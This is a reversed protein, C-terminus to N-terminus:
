TVRQAPPRPATRSTISRRSAARSPLSVLAGHFGGREEPAAEDEGDDRTEDEEGVNFAASPVARRAEGRLGEVAHAIDGECAPVRASEDAVPEVGAAEHAPFGHFVQRFNTKVIVGSPRGGCKHVGHVTLPGTPTPAEEEPLVHPDEGPPRRVSRRQEQAGVAQPDVGTAFEHVRPRRDRDRFPPALNPTDTQAGPEGGMTETEKGTHMGYEIGM